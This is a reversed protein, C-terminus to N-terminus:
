VNNKIAFNKFVKLYVSKGVVERMSRQTARKERAQTKDSGHMISVM